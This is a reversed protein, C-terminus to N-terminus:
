RVLVNVIVKNAIKFPRNRNDTLHDLSQVSSDIICQCTQDPKRGMHLIIYTRRRPLYLLFIAFIAEYSILVCNKRLVNFEASVQMM